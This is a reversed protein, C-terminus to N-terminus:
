FPALATKHCSPRAIPGVPIPDAVTPIALPVPEARLSYLIYLIYDCVGFWTPVKNRNRLSHWLYGLPDSGNLAHTRSSEDNRLHLIISDPDCNGIEGM